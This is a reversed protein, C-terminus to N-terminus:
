CKFRNIKGTICQCSFQNWEDVCSAGNICNHSTCVADSHCGTRIEVISTAKFQENAGTAGQSAESFFPLLVGGVRVEDMCGKYYELGESFLDRSNLFYSSSVGGLFMNSSDRLLEVISASHTRTAQSNRTDDQMLIITNPDASITIDHWEADNVPETTITGSSGVSFRCNLTINTNVTVFFYTLMSCMELM